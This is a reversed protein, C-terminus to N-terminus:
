SAKIKQSMTQLGTQSETRCGLSRNLRAQAMADAVANTSRQEAKATAFIHTLREGIDLLKDMVQADSMGGLYEAAVNIIGGANIVYDPAYLIQRAALAGGDADTQLQNNAGGAIIRTQLKM